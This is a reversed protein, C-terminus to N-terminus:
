TEHPGGLHFQLVPVKSCWWRLPNGRGVALRPSGLALADNDEWDRYGESDAGWSTLTRTILMPKLMLCLQAPFRARAAAPQTARLLWTDGRLRLKRM